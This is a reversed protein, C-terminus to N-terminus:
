ECAKQELFLQIDDDLREFNCHQKKLAINIKNIFQKNNILEGHANIRKFAHIYFPNDAYDLVTQSFADSNRQM